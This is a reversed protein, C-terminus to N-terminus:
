VRYVLAPNNGLQVRYGYTGQLSVVNAAAAVRFIYNNFPIISNELFLDLNAKRGLIDVLITILIVPILVLYIRTFRDIFYKKM